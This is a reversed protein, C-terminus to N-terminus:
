EGTTETTTEETTEADTVPANDKHYFKGDIEVREDSDNDSYYTDTAECMWADDSHCMSGDHLEVCDDRLEYRENYDDYCVREDDQEYYESCSEVYVADDLACADGCELRVIDNDGLYDEDYYEDNCYVANDSDIYYQNGRRGYVYTYNNELCSQCVQRSEDRYVWYGDDEAMGDGCDECSTASEETVSGDTNDCRYQGGEQILLVTQDDLRTIEATKVDGDLYPALPNGHRPGEIYAMYCGDWDSVHRYGQDKLWANLHDDAQSYSSEATPRAYTRVFVKRDGREYVLARGMVDGGEERVAMAWGLRPDYCRYPHSNLDVRAGDGWRMCSHPGRQLAEIMEALTRVIKCGQVTYSAVANRIEHDPLQPFHRTLYKGLSTVTQVNTEGKRENQTYALRNRDSEAQHPYELVLQQWDKPRYSGLLKDVAPHLHFRHQLERHWVRAEVTRERYGDNYCDYRGDSNTFSRYLPVVRNRGERLLRLAIHINTQVNLADIKSDTM